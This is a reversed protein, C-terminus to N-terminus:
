SCCLLEWRLLFFDEYIVTGRGKLVWYLGPDLVDKHVGSDDDRKQCVINGITQSGRLFLRFGLGKTIGVSEWSVM